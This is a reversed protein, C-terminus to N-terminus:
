TKLYDDVVMDAICKLFETILKAQEMNVIIGDLELLKRTKIILDVDEQESKM